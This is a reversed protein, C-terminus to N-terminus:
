ISLKPHFLRVATGKANSICDHCEFNYGVLPMCANQRRISMKFFTKVIEVSKENGNM